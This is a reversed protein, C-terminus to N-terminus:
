NYLSREALKAATWNATNLGGQNLQRQWAMNQRSFVFGNKRMFKCTESNTKDDFETRVRNDSTDVILAYGEFEERSDVFCERAELAKIRQKIRRINANNNTSKLGRGSSYATCRM